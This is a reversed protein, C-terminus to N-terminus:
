RAFRRVRVVDPQRVRACRPGRTGRAAPWRRSARRGLRHDGRGLLAALGSRWGLALVSAAWSSQQLFGGAVVALSKGASSAWVPLPTAGLRKLARVAISRSPSPQGTFATSVVALAMIVPVFTAARNHGVRRACCHSGVLLTIPIFM